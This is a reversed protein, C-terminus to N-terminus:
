LKISCFIWGQHQFSRPHGCCLLPPPLLCVQLLPPPLFCVHLSFSPTLTCAASHMAITTTVLTQTTQTQTPEPHPTSLLLLALPAFLITSSNIRSTCPTVRCAPAPTLYPNNQRLQVATPIRCTRTEKTQRARM